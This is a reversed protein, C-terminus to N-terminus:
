ASPKEPATYRNGPLSKMSDRHKVWNEGEKHNERITSKRAMKNIRVDPSTLLHRTGFWAALGAGAADFFRLVTLEINSVTIPSLSYLKGAICVFLPMTATNVVKSAWMSVVNRGSFFHKKLSNRGDATV